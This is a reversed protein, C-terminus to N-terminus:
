TRASRRIGSCRSPWTGSASTWSTSRSRSGSTPRTTWTSTKATVALFEHYLTRLIVFWDPQDARVVVCIMKRDLDTDTDDAAVLPQVKQLRQKNDFFKSRAALHERLSQNVLGLQDLIISARDARFSRSYLRIDLLWDDEYEPEERASYVLYRGTPDDREM